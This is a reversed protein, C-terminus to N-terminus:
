WHGSTDLPGVVKSSYMPCSSRTHFSLPMVASTLKWPSLWTLASRSTATASAVTSTDGLARHATRRHIAGRTASGDVGPGVSFRRHCVAAESGPLGECQVLHYPEEGSIGGAPPDAAPVRQLQVEAARPARVLVAVDAHQSLVTCRQALQEDAPVDVDGGRAPECRPRTGGEAGLVTLVVQPTTLGGAPGPAEVDGDALAGPLEPDVASVRGDPHAPVLGDQVAIVPDGVESGLELEEELALVDPRLVIEIGALHDGLEGLVPRRGAARLEEGPLMGPSARQGTLPRRSKPLDPPRTSSCSGAARWCVAARTWSTRTTRDHRSGRQIEDLAADLGLAERYPRGSAMSEVVDAVAIIRSGILIQEGEVGLPYGSGDCREHHQFVMRAVHEPFDVRELLEYGAQSHTRVVAMEAESLRGPRVLLEPPVSLKGIDHIKAALEIAEIERSDLGLEGAVAGAIRAVRAQHGATYPDRMEVSASLAGVVARSLTAQSEELQKRETIDVVIIAIGIVSRGVTVPNLNTLWSHIRDPDSATPGSVEQNVVAEGSGIVRRYLPELTPWLAPVVEAVSRGISEEVTGGHVAALMANIRLLRFDRDVYGFGVSETSQLSDIISSAELAGRNSERLSQELRDWDAQAFM